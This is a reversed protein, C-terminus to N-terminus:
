LFLLGGLLNMMNLVEGLIMFRANIRLGLGFILNIQAM